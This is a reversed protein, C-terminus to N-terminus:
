YLEDTEVVVVLAPLELDEPLELEAGSDLTGFRMAEPVDGLDVLGAVEGGVEVGQLPARGGGRVPPEELRGEPGADLEQGV